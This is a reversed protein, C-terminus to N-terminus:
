YDMCLQRRTPSSIYAKTQVKLKTRQIHLFHFSYVHVPDDSDERTAETGFDGPSVWKERIEQM